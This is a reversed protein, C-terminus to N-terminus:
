KRTTKFPQCLVSICYNKLSLNALPSITSKYGVSNGFSKTFPVAGCYCALQKGNELATFGKTYAMLAISTVQGIGKISAVRKVKTNLQEDQQITKAILAEVSM